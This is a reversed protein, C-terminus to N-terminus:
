SKLLAHLSNNLYSSTSPPLFLQLTESYKHIVSSCHNKHQRFVLHLSQQIWNQSIKYALQLRYDIRSHLVSVKKSKTSRIMNRWMLKQFRMIKCKM